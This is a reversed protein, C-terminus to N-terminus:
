SLTAYFYGYIVVRTALKESFNNPFSVFNAWGRFDRTWFCSTYM